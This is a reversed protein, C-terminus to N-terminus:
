QALDHLRDAFDIILDRHALRDRWPAPIGAAGYYAGALQGYVAATTDADEGLNVALLCGTAFTDSRHFAWLAAELSAVVYGSGRIAPPSNRAFSGAAIADIRGFVRQVLAPWDVRDFRGYVGLKEAEGMAAAQDAAYIFMKSPICGRNLCTGGFVDKEVLAINWDDFAAPISNGTGTGVIILDYEVPTPTGSSSVSICSVTQTAPM